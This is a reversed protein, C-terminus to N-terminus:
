PAYALELTDHHAGWGLELHWCGAAPLDIISPGPGNDVTRTVGTGAGRLTARIVLPGTGGGDRASWLIKNNTGAAPHVRLDVFLIAVIQGGASVVHPVPQDPPTFGARAWQPLPGRVVPGCSAAAPPTVDHRASVVAYVGAAAAAGVLATAIAVRDRRRRPGVAARDALATAAAGTDLRHRRSEEAMAERLRQVILEDNM